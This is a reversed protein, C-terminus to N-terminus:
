SRRRAALGMAGVFAALALSSPEPVATGIQVNDLAWFWNNGGTYSFRVKASTAGLPNELEVLVTEDLMTDHFLPDGEICNWSLVETAGGGFDVTISMTQGEEAQWSSDFQLLLSGEALGTVDLTPSELVTTMPKTIGDGGGFDDFEDSDAIVINGTGKTFSNLSTQSAFASFARTTVSWGEWEFVGVNNDGIAAPAIGSNDVNWGTPVTHSFANPYPTTNPDNNAATVKSFAPNIDVRENTSPGLTVGDFNESWVTANGSDKLALNDVAWWWDNAANIYGFAFQVTSAGAPISVSYSLSEDLADGKYTASAPRDPVNDGANSNGADSDWIDLPAPAGGDIIAYVIATQNNDPRGLTVHEDDLGEARWSSDFSFTLDTNQYAAVNVAASTLGTNYYSGGLGDGLDDYEDADAVAVVNQAKAFSSRSQDDVSAWFTKDAFSWGEWEDVGHDASGANGIGTNGVILGTLPIRYLLEPVPDTSVVNTGLDNNLDTFGYNDFNNDVAWGAPGTHTYANPRPATTADSALATRNAFSLPGRRENVSDGLVVGDFNEQYLVTSIQAHAPAAVGMSGAIALAALHRRM